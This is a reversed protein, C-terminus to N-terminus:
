SRKARLAELAARKRAEKAEKMSRERREEEIDERRAIQEARREEIDLEDMGAEMDSSGDSAYDYRPGGAEDDEDDYEIFEDLEEDYDDEYRSRGSGGPRPPARNLLAGGRPAKDKKVTAGPRPRSTGTYGTTALAAKKLKKEEERPNERTGTSKGGLKPRSDKTGLARGNGNDPARDRPQPKASGKFGTSTRSQGPPAAKSPMDREKKVAGKEVKKHQIKGVQGMSQQARQGRALIEAFSGKKPPAKPASPASSFGNSVNTPAPAPRSPKTVRNGSNIPKAATINPRAGPNGLVRQASPTQNIPRSPQPQSPRPTSSTSPPPPQKRASKVVDRLEEVAKRKPLSADSPDGGSIQALLDGIPM